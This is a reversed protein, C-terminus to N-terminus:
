KILNLKGVKEIKDLEKFLRACVRKIEKQCNMKIPKKIM